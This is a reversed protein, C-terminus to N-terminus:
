NVCMVVCVYLYLNLLEDLNDFQELLLNRRCQETNQSYERMYRDVHKVRSIRYLIAYAQSGDRGARGTEQLYMEIDEPPGWHIIRRVDPCDLGMGFAVTAVIILLKSNM